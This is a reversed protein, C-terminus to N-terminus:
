NTTIFMIGTDYRSTRAEVTRYEIEKVYGSLKSDNLLRRQDFFATAGRQQGTVNSEHDTRKMVPSEVVPPLVLHRRRDLNPADSEPGRRRAEEGSGGFAFPCTWAVNSDGLTATTSESSLLIRAEEAFQFSWLDSRRRRLPWLLARVAKGQNKAKVVPPFALPQRGPLCVGDGSSARVGGGGEFNLGVGGGQGVVTAPFFPFVPASSPAGIEFVKRERLRRAEEKNSHDGLLQQSLFSFFGLRARWSVASSLPPLAIRRKLVWASGVAEAKNPRDSGGGEQGSVLDSSVWRRMTLPDTLGAALGAGSRCGELASGVM